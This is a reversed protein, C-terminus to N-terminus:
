NITKMKKLKDSMNQNDTKHKDKMDENEKELNQIKIKLLDHM